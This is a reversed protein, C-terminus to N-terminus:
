ARAALQPNWPKEAKAHESEIGRWCHGLSVADGAEAAYSAAALAATRIQGGTLEARALAPWDLAGLPVAPAFAGRWLREREVPGPEPFHVAYRIRRLFAPDLHKRHNTTLIALGTYSELRQLLYGVEINAHRDHSSSVESRKGFLADAEDFLLVAGGLEAADFVRRLHKETEGIYKSVVSSLDIRYLPLRLRGALCEAAFTKGTGSAGSFLATLNGGRVGGCGDMGWRMLVTARQRCQILLDDLMRRQTAPLVLSEWADNGPLRQALDDLLPICRGICADWLAPWDAVGDSGRAQACAAAIGSADLRFQCVLEDLRAGLGAADGAGGLHQSFLTRREAATMAPVDIRLVGQRRDGLPREGALVLRFCAHAALWQLRECIAPDGPDQHLIVVAGLGLLAEREWRRLFREREDHAAPVQAAAVVFCPVGLREWAHAAAAVADDVAGVLEVTSVGAATDEPADELARHWQQLLRQAAARQGATPLVTTARRQVQRALDPDPERVGKLVHLLHEDLRLRSQALSGGGELRLLQWRRLPGGPTFANWHADPLIRVALSLCPFGDGHAAGAGAMLGGLRGDLEWAASLVILGVEFRSLSFARRLRELAPPTEMAAVVAALRDDLERQHEDDTAAAASGDTSGSLREGLRDFCAQLYANDAAEGRLFALHEFRGAPAASM